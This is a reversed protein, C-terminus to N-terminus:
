ERKCPKAHSRFCWTHATTMHMSFAGINYMIIITNEVTQAADAAGEIVVPIGWYRYDYSYINTYKKKKERERKKKGVGDGGGVVPECTIM